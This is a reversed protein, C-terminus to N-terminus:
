QTSWMYYVSVIVYDTSEVWRPLSCLVVQNWVLARVMMGTVASQGAEVEYWARMVRQM